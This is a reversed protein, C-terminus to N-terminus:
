ERTGGCGFCIVSFMIQTLQITSRAARETAQDGMFRPLKLHAVTKRVIDVLSGCSNTQKTSM